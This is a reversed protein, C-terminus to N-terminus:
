VSDSPSDSDGEVHNDVNKPYKSGAYEAYLERLGRGRYVGLTFDTRYLFEIPLEIFTLPFIQLDWGKIARDDQLSDLEKQHGIFFIALGGIRGLLHDHFLVLGKSKDDIFENFAVDTDNMSLKRPHLLQQPM